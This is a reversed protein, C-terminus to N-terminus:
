RLSSEVFRRALRGAAQSEGMEAKQRFERCLAERGSVVFHTRSLHWAAASQSRGLGPPAAGRAEVEETKSGLVVVRFPFGCVSERGRVKLHQSSKAAGFGLMRRSAERLSCRRANM